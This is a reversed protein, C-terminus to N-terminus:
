ISDMYLMEVPYPVIVGAIRGHCPVKAELGELQAPFQEFEQPIVFHVNMPDAKFACMRTASGSGATNARAWPVVRVGPNNALFFSLITTDSTASRAKTKILAHRAVPLVIVDPSSVDNTNNRITTVMTNMDSLIEDPLVSAGTWATGGGTKTLATALSVGANNLLGTLGFSTDGVAGIKDVLEEFARRAAIARSASLPRGVRSSARLEQVSYGYSMGIGRVPVLNELKKVDARPLDDAYSKLLRALGVRDYSEYLITEAANDVETDLPIIQRAILNAYKPDYTQQRVYTLARDTFMVEGADMNFATQLQERSAPTLSTFGNPNM